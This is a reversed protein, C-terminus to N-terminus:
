GSSTYPQFRLLGIQIGARRYVATKLGKIVRRALSTHGFSRRQKVGEKIEAVECYFKAVENILLTKTYRTEPSAKELLERCCQQSGSLATTPHSLLLSQFATTM